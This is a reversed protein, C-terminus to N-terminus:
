LRSGVATAYTVTAAAATAVVLLCLVAVAVIDIVGRTLTRPAHELARCLDVLDVYVFAADQSRNRRWVIKAVMTTPGDLLIAGDVREVFMPSRHTDVDIWGLLAAIDARWSAAGSARDGHCGVAACWAEALTAHRDPAHGLYVLPRAGCHPDDGNNDNDVTSKKHWQPETPPHRCSLCRGQHLHATSWFCGALTRRDVTAILRGLRAAFSYGRDVRRGDPPKPRQPHRHGLPTTEGFRILEM